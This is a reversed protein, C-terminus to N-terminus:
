AQLRRRRLRAVLGAAALASAGASAASPLPVVVLQPPPVTLSPETLSTGYQFGVSGIRGIDFGAAPLGLTFV